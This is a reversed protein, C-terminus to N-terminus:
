KSLCGTSAKQEIVKSCPAFGKMIRVLIGKLSPGSSSVQQGREVHYVRM